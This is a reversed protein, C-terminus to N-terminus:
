GIRRVLFAGAASLALALLVLGTTGLAPVSNVNSPAATNTLIYVGGGPVGPGGTSFVQYTGVTMNATATVQAHGTADTTAPSTALTASAGSSPATFTVVVGSVPNGLADTALVGLPTAFATGVMTGQIVGGAPVLSTVAGASIVFTNSTAGTLVGSAASLTKTGILNVSLGSFTAVGSGSTTQTATGSLTGTGSALALTISVGAQAVAGGGADQLQVTVSPAGIAAGATANTPQQVFALKTAVAAVQVEVAGIDCRSGSPRTLGRQDVTLPGGGIALCGAPDGADIVPSGANPLHTFTPGVVVVNGFNPGGNNALAGLSPAVGVLDTAKTTLGSSNGILNYGNSTFTGNVAIEPNSSPGGTETNGALISNRMSLTSGGPVYFGGRSNASNLTVTVNRLDTTGSQVYIAGAYGSTGQSSNGSVTCNELGVTGNTVLAGGAGNGQASNRSFTCRRFTATVSQMSFAGSGGSASSNQDFTTDAVDVTGNVASVAGGWGGNSANLRFLSGTITINLATYIAGGSFTAGACTNNTFTSSDVGITAAGSTSGSIAGGHGALAQNLNFHGNSVSLSGGQLDIAGGSLSAVNSSFDTDNITVTGSYAEIAGGFSAATSASFTSYRITTSPLLCSAGCSTQHIAGGDGTASNSTFTVTDLTLKGENLIAGGFGGGTSAHGNTFRINRFTIDPLATASGQLIVMSFTNGTGDLTVNGGGDVVTVLNTPVINLNQVPISVAGGCSFTVAGGAAIQTALALQTCSSATGNGVVGATAAPASLVAALVGVVPWWSMSRPHRAASGDTVVGSEYSAM